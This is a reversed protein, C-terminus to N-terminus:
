IGNKLIVESFNKYKLLLKSFPFEDLSDLFTLAISKEFSDIFLKNKKLNCVKRSKIFENDILKRELAGHGTLVHILTEIGSSYGAKIDSLRDGILLSNKTDLGLDKRASEIMGINPKRWNNKKNSSMYGNSYIADFALDDGLLNLMRDTVKFYEEWSFFDRSIGSQNTILVTKLGATKAFSLLKTIGKELIVNNPNSIYHCDKIVVGDRDLFLAPSLTSSDKSIFGDKLILKNEFINQNISLYQELM